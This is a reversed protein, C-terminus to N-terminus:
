CSDAEFLGLLSSEKNAVAASDTVGVATLALPRKSEPNEPVALADGECDGGEVVDVVAQEEPPNVAEESKVSASARSGSARAAASSASAWRVTCRKQRM